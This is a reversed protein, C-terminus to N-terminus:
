EDEEGLEWLGDNIETWIPKDLYDKCEEECKRMADDVRLFWGRGEEDYMLEIQERMKHLAICSSLGIFAITFKKVHIVSVHEDFHFWIPVYVEKGILEERM